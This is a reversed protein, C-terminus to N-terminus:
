SIHCLSITTMRMSGAEGSERAEDLLGECADLLLVRAVVGGSKSRSSSFKESDEALWGEGQRRLLLLAELRRDDSFPCLKGFGASGVCVLRREELTEVVDVPDEPRPPLKVEVKGVGVEGACAGLFDATFLLGTGAEGEKWGM